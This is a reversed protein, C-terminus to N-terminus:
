YTLGLNGIQPNGNRVRLFEVEGGGLEEGLHLPDGNLKGCSSTRNRFILM